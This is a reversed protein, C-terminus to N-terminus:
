ILATAVPPAQPATGGKVVAKAGGNPKSLISKPADRLSLVVSLLPFIFLQTSLYNENSTKDITQSIAPWWSNYM